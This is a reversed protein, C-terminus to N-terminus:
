PRAATAGAARRRDPADSAVVSREPRMCPGVRRHAGSRARRHQTDETRNALPTLRLSALAGLTDPAFPHRTSAHPLRQIRLSYFSLGLSRSPYRLPKTVSTQPCTNSV